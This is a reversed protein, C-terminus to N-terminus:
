RAAKRKKGVAAIATLGSVVTMIGYLIVSTQDGTKAAVTGTYVNNFIPTVDQKVELKGNGKDNITVKVTYATTDYTVKSLTGKVQTIRYEYTNGISDEDFSIQAFAVMGDAKNKVTTNKPMPAGKTVATIKYQFEEKELTRGKLTTKAQIEINGTAKYENKFNLKTNNSSTVSLTGDGNDKVEVVVLYSENAYTMGSEKGAIQTIKYYHTGIDELGYTYILSFKGSTDNIATQATTNELKKGDKNTEVVNITFEGEKLNRGGADLTISGSLTLNVDAVDYKSSFVIENHDYVTQVSLFGEKETVVVKVTFTNTDYTVGKLEGKVERIIYVSETPKDYTFEKATFTVSALKGADAADNMGTAIVVGSKDVVEFKFEGAKLDRGTLVMTAEINATSWTVPSVSTKDSDETSNNEENQELNKTSTDEENQETHESVINEENRELNEDVVPYTDSAATFEVWLGSQEIFQGERWLMNSQEENCLEFCMNNEMWYNFEANFKMPYTVLHEGNEDQFTVNKKLELIYVVPSEKTGVPYSGGLRIQNTEVTLNNFDMTYEVETDGQKATLTINEATFDEKTLTINQCYSTNNYVLTANLKASVDLHDATKVDKDFIEEVVNSTKLLETSTDQAIITLCNTVVMVIILINAILKRRYVKKM